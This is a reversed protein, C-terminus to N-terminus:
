IKDYIGIPLIRLLWAILRWRRTVYVISKKKDIARVIQQAAKQPKAVWFLGAGKAMATDVFGPIISTVVINAAAKKAKKRLAELYNLEYAKSASYAPSTEIGRIGAISCIAAIHGHGQKSFFDYGFGAADSFGSVNTEITQREPPWQLEKNIFGTGASIIMLDLGGLSDVLGSMVDRSDPRRIDHWAFVIAEPYQDRIQRLLDVRRGTIAVRHGSRACLLAIERGIGSSAGIILIKKMSCLTGQFKNKM